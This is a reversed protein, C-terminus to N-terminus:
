AEPRRMNSFTKNTKTQSCWCTLHGSVPFHLPRFPVLPLLSQLLTNHVEARAQKCHVLFLTCAQWVVQLHSMLYTVLLLRLSNQLFSLIEWLPVVRLKNKFLLRATKQWYTQKRSKSVGKLKWIPFMNLLYLKSTYSTIYFGLNNM